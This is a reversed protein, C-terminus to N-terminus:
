LDMVVYCLLAKGQMTRLDIAPLGLDQKHKAYRLKAKMSKCTRCRRHIRGDRIWQQTNSPTLKHGRRCTDSHSRVM